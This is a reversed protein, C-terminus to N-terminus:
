YLIAISSHLLLNRWPTEKVLIFVTQGFRDLIMSTKVLSLFVTHHVICKWLCRNTDHSRNMFSQINTCFIFMICVEDPRILYLILLTGSQPREEEQTRRFDRAGGHVPVRDVAWVSCESEEQQEWVMFCM